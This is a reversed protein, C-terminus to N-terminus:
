HLLRDEQGPTSPAIPVAAAPATVTPAAALPETDTGAFKLLHQKRVM